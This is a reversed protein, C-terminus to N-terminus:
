SAKCDTGAATCLPAFPATLWYATTSGAALAATITNCLAEATTSDDTPYCRTTSTSGRVTEYRVRTSALKEPGVSHVALMAWAAGMRCRDATGEGIASHVEGFPSETVGAAAAASYHPKSQSM